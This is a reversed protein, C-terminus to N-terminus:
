ATSADVTTTTSTAERQEGGLCFSGVIIGIVLLAALIRFIM